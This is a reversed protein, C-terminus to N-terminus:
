GARASRRVRVLVKLFKHVHLWGIKKSCNYIWLADCHLAFARITKAGQLEMDKICYIVYCDRVKTLLQALMETDTYM